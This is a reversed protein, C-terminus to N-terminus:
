THIIIGTNTVPLTDYPRARHCSQSLNRTNKLIEEQAACLEAIRM